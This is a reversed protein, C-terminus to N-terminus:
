GNARRSEREARIFAKGRLRLLATIGRNTESISLPEYDPWNGNCWDECEQNSDFSRILFMKPQLDEAM